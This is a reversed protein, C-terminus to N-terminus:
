LKIKVVTEYVENGVTVSIQFSKVSPVYKFYKLYIMIEQGPSLSGQKPNFELGDPTCYVEYQRERNSESKLFLFDGDKTPPTLIIISPELRCSTTMM